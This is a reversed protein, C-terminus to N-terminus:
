GHIAALTAALGIAARLRKRVHGVQVAVFTNRCHNIQLKFLQLSFIGVQAM